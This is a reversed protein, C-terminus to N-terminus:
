DRIFKQQCPQVINMTKPANKVQQKKAVCIHMRVCVCVSRVCVCVCVGNKM